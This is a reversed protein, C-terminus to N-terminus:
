ICMNYIRDLVVSTKERKDKATGMVRGQSILRTKKSRDPWERTQSSSPLEVIVCFLTAVGFIELKFGELM